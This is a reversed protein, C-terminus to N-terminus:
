VVDGLVSNVAVGRARLAAASRTRVLVGVTAEDSASAAGMFVGQLQRLEFASEAAAIRTLLFHLEPSLSASRRGAPVGELEFCLWMALAAVIGRYLMKVQVM